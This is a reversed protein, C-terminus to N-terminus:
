IVAFGQGLVPMCPSLKIAGTGKTNFPRYSTVIVDALAPKGSINLDQSIYDDLAAIKSGNGVRSRSVIKKDM